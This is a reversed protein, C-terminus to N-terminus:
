TQSPKFSLSFMLFMYIYSFIFCVTGPANDEERLIMNRLRGRTASRGFISVARGLM